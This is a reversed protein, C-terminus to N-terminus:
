HHKSVRIRLGPQEAPVPQRAQVIMAVALAAFVMSINKALFYGETINVFAFVLTIAMPFVDLVALERSTRVILRKGAFLVWGVFVIILASGLYGFQMLLDVYGNDIYLDRPFSRQLGVAYGGGLLTTGSNRFIEMALFSFEARGSLDSTKGILRPLFDLLGYSWCVYLFVIALLMVNLALYRGTPALHIAIWYTSYLIIPTVIILVLGTASDSGIVCALAIFIAAIRIIPSRFAISGYFTLLGTTLGAFVGLGQKHSFIGRWRDITDLPYGIGTKQQLASDPFIIVWFISLLCELVMVRLILRICETPSLRGVMAVAFLVVNLLVYSKQITYPYNWSWTASAFALAVMALIPWCRIALSLANRSTVILFFGFAGTLVTIIQLVVSGYLGGSSDSGLEGNSDSALQLTFASSIFILGFAIVFQILISAREGGAARLPGIARIPFNASADPSRFGIAM